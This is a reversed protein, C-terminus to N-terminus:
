TRVPDTPKGTRGPSLLEGVVNATYDVVPVIRSYNLRTPGIVGLAGVIGGDADRYPAVVLSSGSLSFLKTESGIFIRVGDATETASLLRVLDQKSELDEFLHRVRDIDEVARVDDLLNARGRVILQRPRGEELGAWSALGAEILPQTLADLEAAQAEARANLAARAEGLTKGRLHVNLFNAAETLASMPLGAPLDVVRNEVGGDEGVLVVLGKQDELRIFEIHKLRMDNKAALVLGASQTLGSLLTSAETLVDEVDRASEGARMTAEISAREDPSVDGVEMFADVFFRLGMETPLRGASIHPAFILGLSELDSMVNRITAPSLSQGLGRSLSRSGLPEGTELYNEVIRRFIDRSRGDLGDAFEQAIANKQDM